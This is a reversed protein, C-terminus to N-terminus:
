TGSLATSLVFFGACLLYAPFRTRWVGCFTDAEGRPTSAACSATLFFILNKTLPEKYTKATAKRATAMNQLFFLNRKCYM